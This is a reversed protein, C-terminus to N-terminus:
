GSCEILVGQEEKEVICEFEHMSYLQKIQETNLDLTLVSIPCNTKVCNTKDFYSSCIKQTSGATSGFTIVSGSGLTVKQTFTTGVESGCVFDAKQKLLNLSNIMEQAKSEEQGSAVIGAVIGISILATIVGVYLWIVQEM